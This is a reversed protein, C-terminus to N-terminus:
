RVTIMEIGLRACYASLDALVKNDPLTLQPSESATKEGMPVFADPGIWSVQEGQPL